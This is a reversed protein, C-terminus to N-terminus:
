DPNGGSSLILCAADRCNYMGIACSALFSKEKKRAIVLGMEWTLNLMSDGTGKEECHLTEWSSPFAILDPWDTELLLAKLSVALSVVVDEFYAWLRLAPKHGM